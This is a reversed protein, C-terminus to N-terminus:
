KIMFLRKPPAKMMIQSCYVFCGCFVHKNLIFGSMIFLALWVVVIPSITGINSIAIVGHFIVLAIAPIYFMIKKM